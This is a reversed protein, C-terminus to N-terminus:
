EAAEYMFDMHFFDSNDLEVPSNNDFPADKTTLSQYWLTMFNQSPNEVHGKITYYTSTSTDHLTGASMDMHHNPPFPLNLRYIGTGFNTVNSFPVNLHVVVVKGYNMYTGTAPNSTQAFDGGASELVPTWAIPEPQPPTLSDLWEQETGSFGNAVAIDYASDGDPGQAGAQGTAGTPGAPGQPGAPGAPGTSGPFPVIKVTTRTTM